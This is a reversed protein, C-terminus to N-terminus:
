TNANELQGWEKGLNRAIGIKGEAMDKMKQEWIGQNINNGYCGTEPHWQHHVLVNDLFKFELGLTKLRFAFDDDDFAYYIYDEDFGRLQNVVDRKLAQCFFLPRASHIRHCYWMFPTGNPKLALVSAFTTVMPNQRVPDVMSEITNPTIHMCEANQLLIIDGSAARMGINNPIAPNSYLHGPRHFRPIYKIQPYTRCVIRQQEDVGDDVVIVEFDKFDQAYISALTNELQKPRKYATMVISVEPM